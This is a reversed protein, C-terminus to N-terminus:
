FAEDLGLVSQALAEVQAAIEPSVSNFEKM